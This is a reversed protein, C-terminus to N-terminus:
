LCSKMLSNMFITIQYYNKFSINAVLVPIVSYNGWSSKCIFNSRKKSLITRFLTLFLIRSMGFYGVKMWILLSDRPIFLLKRAWNKMRWRRQWICSDQSLCIGMFSVWSSKTWSILTVLKLSKLLNIVYGVWHEANLYM